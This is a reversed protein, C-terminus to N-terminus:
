GELVVLLDISPLVIDILPTGEHTDAVWCVKDMLDMNAEISDGTVKGYTIGEM